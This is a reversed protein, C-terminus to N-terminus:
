QRRRSLAQGIHAYEHESAALDIILDRFGLNACRDLWRAVRDYSGVLKPADIGRNPSGYWLCEDYISAEDALAYSRAHESSAVDRRFMAGALQQRRDAGPHLVAAAEWAANDDDRAVVGVLMVFGHGPQEVHLHATDNELVALPRAMTLLADAEVAGPTSSTPTVLASLRQGGPARHGAEAVFDAAFEILRRRTNLKDEANPRSSKTAGAVVNVHAPRGFRYNLNAARRASSAAAEVHPRVAVVPELTSSVSMVDFAALWPDLAAPFDYVFAGRAGIHEGADAYAGLRTLYEERPLPQGLAFSVTHPPIIMSLSLPWQTM